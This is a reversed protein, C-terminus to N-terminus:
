ILTETGQFVYHEESTNGVRDHSQAAHSSMKCHFICICITLWFFQVHGPIPGSGAGANGGEGRETRVGHGTPHQGQLGHSDIPCFHAYLLAPLPNRLQAGTM